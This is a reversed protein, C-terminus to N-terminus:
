VWRGCFCWATEDASPFAGVEGADVRGTLGRGRVEGGCCLFLLVRFPATDIDSDKTNLFVAGLSVAVGQQVPTQVPSAHQTEGM